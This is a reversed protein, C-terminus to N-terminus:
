GGRRRGCRGGCVVQGIARAFRSASVRFRSSPVPFASALIRTRFGGASMCLGNCPFVKCGCTRLILFMTAGQSLLEDPRGASLGRAPLGPGGRTIGPRGPADAPRGPLSPSIPLGAAVFGLM